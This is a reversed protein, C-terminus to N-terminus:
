FGNAYLVLESITQLIYQHIMDYQLSQNKKKILLETYYFFINCKSVFIKLFKVYILMLM